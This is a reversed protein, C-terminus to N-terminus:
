AQARRRAASLGLLALGALALSTPEPVTNEAVYSILLRSARAVDIQAQPLEDYCPAEPCIQGLGTPVNRISGAAMLYNANTSHGNSSGAGVDLGLNHGLEHAITDLRGVGANFSMVDGMNIVLGGANLYAEGYLTCANCALNNVLYMTTGTGGLAGTFNGVGAANNLLNTSNMTNGFVFKVDIGAQAWIKDTEAEFYANGAPGLSACNNGNDDCVQVVTVVLQLDIPMASAGLSAFALAGAGAFQLAARRLGGFLKNM